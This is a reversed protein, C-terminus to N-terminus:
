KKQDMKNQLEAKDLTQQKSLESKTSDIKNNLENNKVNLNTVIESYRQDILLQLASKSTNFEQTLKTINTTLSTKLDQQTKSVADELDKKTQSISDTLQKDSSSNDKKLDSVNESLKSNIDKIGSDIAQQLQNQTTTITQNLENKITLQKDNVEKIKTDITNNLQQQTESISNNISIIDKNIESIQKDVEKDKKSLDSVNQMLQQINTMATSLQTLISQQTKTLDDLIDQIDEVDSSLRKGTKKNYNIQALLETYLADTKATLKTDVAHVQTDSSTATSKYLNNVTEVSSALAENSNQLSNLTKQMDLIQGYQTTSGDVTSKLDEDPLAYAIANAVANAVYSKSLDTLTGDSKIKINGADVTSGLMTVVSDLVKQYEEDTLTRKQSKLTGEIIPMAWKKISAADKLDSEKIPENNNLTEYTRLKVETALTVTPSQLMYVGFGAIIALTLVISLIVKKEKGVKLKHKKM